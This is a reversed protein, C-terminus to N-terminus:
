SFSRLLFDPVHDGMGVVPAKDDRRGGGRGRGSRGTAAPTRETANRESATAEEPAPAETEAARPEEAPMDAEAPEEKKRSRRAPASRVSEDADSRPPREIQPVDKGIMEHIAALAKDDGPTTAIMLARGKLGARGTRGIRHVYDEAHNPVDFNIVHSVAPIDLGRAAVDSAVLFRISGDRFGDLTRTRHSQDLDGHIPEANFGHKKLSKAVTDM